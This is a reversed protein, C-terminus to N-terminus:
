YISMGQPYNLGKVREVVKKPNAPDIEIVRNQGQELILTNGDELRLAQVPRSLNGHKWLVRSDADVEVVQGRQYDTILTNGSELRQARWPRVGTLNARWKERGERDLEVVQYNSSVLTNGSQLRQVSIPYNVAAQWVINKSKAEYEVVRNAYYEAVLTNGSELRVADYPYNSQEIRWDVKGGSRGEPRVEIVQNYNTNAILVNGSPLRRASWSYQTNQAYTWIEKGQADFDRIGNQDCVLINGSTMRAQPAFTVAHLQKRPVDVVGVLHSFVRARESTLSQLMGVLKDGNAFTLKAFWGPPPDPLPTERHLYVHKVASREFERDAPKAAAAGEAALPPNARFKVREGVALLRGYEAVLERLPADKGEEKRSEERILVDVPEERLEPLPGGLPGLALARVESRPVRFSGASTEVRFQDGEFAVVKGSLLGGLQLRLQEVGPDPRGPAADSFVIRSVDELAIERVRGGDRVRLPGPLSFGDIGARLETRDGLVIRPANEQAPLLFVLGVIALRM